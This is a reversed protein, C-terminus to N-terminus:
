KTISEGYPIINPSNAGPYKKHQSKFVKENEM